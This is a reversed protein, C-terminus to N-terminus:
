GNPVVSFVQPAKAYLETVAPDRGEQHMITVLSKKHEQRQM